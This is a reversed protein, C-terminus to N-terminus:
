MVTLIDATGPLGARGLLHGPPLALLPAGVPCCLLVLAEMHAVHSCCCQVGVM